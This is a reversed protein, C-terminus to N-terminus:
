KTRAEANYFLACASAVIMLGVAACTKGPHSQNDPSLNSSDGQNENTSVTAQSEGITAATSVKGDASVKQVRIIGQPASPATKNELVYLIKNKYYVGTPSWDKDSQAVVSIRKDPAIKLIKKSNYDATYINNEGDVTLGFLNLNPVAATLQKEDAILSVNDDPAAKWINTSNKFYLAGASDFAMGTFSYPVVQSHATAKREDGLLVKLSGNANRKLLFYERPESETQGFYYTAGAKNRWISTGKPPTSTPALIYSFQGDPTIKWLSSTFKQTSPEYNLEEGLLNGGKDFAMEHTHREVFVSVRGAADIKWIKQLDSVYIQNKDDVVIAWAPHASASNVWVFFLAFVFIIRCLPNKM